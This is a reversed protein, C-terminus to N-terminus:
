QLAAFDPLTWRYFALRPSIVEVTENNGILRLSQIIVNHPDGTNKTTIDWMYYVTRYDRLRQRLYAAYDQPNTTDKPAALTCWASQTQLAYYNLYPYNSTAIGDTLLLLPEGPKAHQEIFRTARHWNTLRGYHQQDFNFRFLASGIVVAYLFIATRRLYPKFALGQFGKVFFLLIFPLSTIHFNAHTLDGRLAIVGLVAIAFPLVVLALFAYRSLREDPRRLQRIAGYTILAFTVLALLVLAGNNIVEQLGFKSGLGLDHVRFYAFGTAYAAILKFPASRPDTTFATPSGLATHAFRLTFVMWPAYLVAVAALSGFYAWFSIQRRDTFALVTMGLLYIAYIPQTYMSITAVLTGAVLFRIGRTERYRLYMFFQLLGLVSLLCYIRTEGAIDIHIPSLALLLSLAAAVRRGGFRKGIVWALPVAALSFAYPVIKIWWETDPGLSRWFYLISYFVPRFREISTPLIHVSDRLAAMDDLSFSSRFYEWRVVAGILFVILPVYKSEWITSSLQSGAEKSSVSSMRFGEQSVYMRVFAIEVHLNCETVTREGTQLKRVASYIILLPSEIRM